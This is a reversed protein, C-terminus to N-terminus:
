VFVDSGLWLSIEWPSSSKSTDSVRAEEWIPWSKWLAVWITAMNFHGLPFSVYWWWIFSISIMYGFKGPLASKSIAPQTTEDWGMLWTSYVYEKFNKRFDKCPHDGHLRCSFSTIHGYVRRKRAFGGCYCKGELTTQAIGTKSNEVAINKKKRGVVAKLSGFGPPGM